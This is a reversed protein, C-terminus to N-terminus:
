KLRTAAAAAEQEDHVPMLRVTLAARRFRSARALQIALTPGPRPDSSQPSTRLTHVTAGRPRSAPVVVYGSRESRVWLYALSSLPIRLSGVAVRSGDRLVAVVSAARGGWSPFLM